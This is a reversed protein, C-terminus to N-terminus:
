RTTMQHRAFAAISAILWGTFSVAVMVASALVMSRLWPPGPDSHLYALLGAGSTLLAALSIFCVQSFRRAAANEFRQFKATM